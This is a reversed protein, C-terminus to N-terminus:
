AHVAIWGEQPAAAPDPPEFLATGGLAAAQAGFACLVADLPDAAAAMRRRAEEPLHLRRALAAVLEVRRAVDVADRGGYRQFPLGWAALQGAPYAEVLLGRAGAAAGATPEESSPPWPLRGVAGVLALAAATFGAGGRPGDWLTSRVNLGRGRWREETARFRKAGRPPADPWVARLLAAGTPFPRGDPRPLGAVLAPLAGRGGPPLVAAPISLPADIGAATFDGGALRAVLRAFPPGEGPLDQAPRLETLALGGDPGEAVTAIWVNTRRCGATWMAPSGSFDVGLYHDM